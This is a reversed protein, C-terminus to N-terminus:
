ILSGGNESGESATILTGFERQLYEIDLCGLWFSDHVFQDAAGPFYDLPLYQQFEAASSAHESLHDPGAVRLSEQSVLVSPNEASSHESPSARSACTVSDGNNAGIRSTVSLRSGDTASGQSTLRKMLNSFSKM